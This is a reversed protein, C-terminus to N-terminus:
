RERVETNRVVTLRGRKPRGVELCSNRSCGLTALKPGSRM